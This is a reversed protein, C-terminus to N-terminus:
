IVSQSPHPKVGLHREPLSLSLIRGDMSNGDSPCWQSNKSNFDGLFMVNFYGKDSTYEHLELLDSCFSIIDYDNPRYCLCLFAFKNIKNPLQYEFCMIESSEPEITELRTININDSAYLCLGGGVRDDSRDCRFLKPLNDISILSNPHESKCWSETICMISINNTETFSELEIVKPPRNGLRKYNSDLEAVISRVNAQCINISTQRQTDTNPGPNPHVDNSNLLIKHNIYLAVLLCLFIFSWYYTNNNFHSSCKLYFYGISARYQCINVGM